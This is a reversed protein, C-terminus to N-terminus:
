KEDLYMYLCLHFSSTKFSFYIVPKVIFYHTKVQNRLSIAEQHCTFNSISPKKKKKKGTVSHVPALICLSLPKLM